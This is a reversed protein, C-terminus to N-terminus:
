TKVGSARAVQDTAIRFAEYAPNTTNKTFVAITKTEMAQRERFAPRDCISAQSRRSGVQWQSRVLSENQTELAAWFIRGSFYLRNVPSMRRWNCHLANCTRCFCFFCACLSPFLRFDSRTGVWRGTTEVDM